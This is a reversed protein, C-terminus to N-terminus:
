YRRSLESRRPKTQDDRGDMERVERTTTCCLRRSATSGGTCPTATSGTLCPSPFVPRYHVGCLFRVEDMRNMLTIWFLDRVISDSTHARVYQLDSRTVTISLLEEWAGWFLPFRSTFGVCFFLEKVASTFARLARHPADQKICLGYMYLLFADTCGSKMYPELHTTIESLEATSLIPYPEFLDQQQKRHFEILVREQM